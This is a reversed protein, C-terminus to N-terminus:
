PRRAHDDGNLGGALHVALFPGLAATLLVGGAKIYWMAERAQGDTLSELDVGLVAFVARAAVMGLGFLVACGMATSAILGAGLLWTNLRDAAGGNM